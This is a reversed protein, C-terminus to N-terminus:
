EDEDLVWYCKIARHQVVFYAAAAAICLGLTLMHVAHPLGLHMDELMGAAGCLVIAAGLAAMWPWVQRLFAGADLCEEPKVKKPLLLKMDELQGSARVKVCLSLCYCGALLFIMDYVMWLSM